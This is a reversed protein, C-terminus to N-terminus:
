FSIMAWKSNWQVWTCGRQCLSTHSIVLTLCLLHRNLLCLWPSQYCLLLFNLKLLISFVPFKPRKNNHWSFTLWLFSRWPLLFNSFCTLSFQSPFFSFPPTLCHHYDKKQWEKASSSQLLTQCSWLHIPTDMFHDKTGSYTKVVHSPLFRGQFTLKDRFIYVM